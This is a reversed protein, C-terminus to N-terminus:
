NLTPCFFSPSRVTGPTREADGVGGVCLLTEGTAEREELIKGRWWWGRRWKDRSRKKRFSSGCAGKWNDAGDERRDGPSLKETCINAKWSFATMSGSAYTHARCQRFTLQAKTLGEKANKEKYSDPLLESSSCVDPDPCVWAPLFPFCSSFFPFSHFFSLSICDRKSHADMRIRRSEPWDHVDPFKCPPLVNRFWRFPGSGWLVRLKNFAIPLHM